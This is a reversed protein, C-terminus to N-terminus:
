SRRTPTWVNAFATTSQLGCENRSTCCDMQKMTSWARKSANRAKKLGTRLHSSSRATPKAALRGTNKARLARRATPYGFSPRKTAPGQASSIGNSGELTRAVRTLGISQDFSSFQLQVWHMPGNDLYASLRGKTASGDGKIEVDCAGTRLGGRILNNIDLRLGIDLSMRERARPMKDDRGNQTSNGFWTGSPREGAHGPAAGSPLLAPEAKWRELRRHKAAM